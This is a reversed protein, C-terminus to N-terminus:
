RLDKLLERLYEYGYDPRNVYASIAEDEAIKRLPYEFMALVEEKKLERRKYLIALFEFFNLYTDLNQMQATDKEAKVFYTEEWDILRQMQQLEENDYFRQYLEFLWRTRERASNRRYQWWSGGAALVAVAYTLVELWERFSQM